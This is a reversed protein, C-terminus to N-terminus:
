FPLDEKDEGNPTPTDPQDTENSPKTEGTKREYYKKAEIILKKEKETFLLEDIKSPHEFFKLGFHTYYKIETGAATVKEVKNASIKIAFEVGTLCDIIEANTWQADKASFKAKYKIKKPPSIEMALNLINGIQQIGMPNPDGDTKQLYINNKAIVKDDDEGKEFTLEVGLAGNKSKIAVVKSVKFVARTGIPAYKVDDDSVKATTDINYGKNQETM